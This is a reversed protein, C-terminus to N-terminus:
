EKRKEQGSLLILANLYLSICLMMGVRSFKCLHLINSHKCQLVFSSLRCKKKGHLHKSRKQFVHEVSEFCTTYLMVHLIKFM